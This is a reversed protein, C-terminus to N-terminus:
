LSARDGPWRKQRDSVALHHNWCAEERECGSRALLIGVCSYIFTRRAGGGGRAAQGRPGGSGARREDPRARMSQVRQRQGSM